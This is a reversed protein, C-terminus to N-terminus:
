GRRVERRLRRISRLYYRLIRKRYKDNFNVLLTKIFNLDGGEIEKLSM